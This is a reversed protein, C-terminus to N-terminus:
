GGGEWHGGKSCIFPRSDAACHPAVRPVSPLIAAPTPIRSWFTPNLPIGMRYCPQPSNTHSHKTQVIKSAFFQDDFNKLFIFKLVRTSVCWHPSNPRFVRSVCSECIKLVIWIYGFLDLTRHISGCCLIHLEVILLKFTANQCGFHTGNFATLTPSPIIKPFSDFASFSHFHPPFQEFYVWISYVNHNFCSEALINEIHNKETFPSVFMDLISNGFISFRFDLLLKGSIYNLLPTISQESCESKLAM